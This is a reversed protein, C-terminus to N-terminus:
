YFIFGQLQISLQVGHINIITVGINQELMVAYMISVNKVPVAACPQVHLGPNIVNVIGRVVKKPLWM